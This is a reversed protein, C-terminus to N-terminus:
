IESRPTRVLQLVKTIFDLNWRTLIVEIIFSIFLVLYQGSFQAIGPVLVAIWYSGALLVIAVVIVVFLGGLLLGLFFLVSVLIGGLTLLRLVSNAFRILLFIVITALSAIAGAAAAMHPLFRRGTGLQLAMLAITLLVWQTVKGYSWQRMFSDETTEM